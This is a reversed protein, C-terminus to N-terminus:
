RSGNKSRKSLPMDRAWTSKVPRKRAKKAPEIQSPQVEKLHSRDLTEASPEDAIQLERAVRDFDRKSPRRMRAFKTVELTWKTQIPNAKLFAIWHRRTTQYSIGLQQAVQMLMSRESRFIRSESMGRYHDIMALETRWKTEIGRIVAPSTTRWIRLAATLAPLQEVSDWENSIVNDLDVIVDDLDSLIQSQQLSFLDGVTYWNAGRGAQDRQGASVEIAQETADRRWLAMAKRHLRYARFLAVGGHHARYQNLAMGAQEQLAQWEPKERCGHEVHQAILAPDIMGVDRCQREVRARCEQPTERM